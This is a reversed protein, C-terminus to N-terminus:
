GGDRSPWPSAHPQFPTAADGGGRRGLAALPRWWPCTAAGRRRGCNSRGCADPAEPPVAVRRDVAATVRRRHRPAAARRWAVAPNRRLHGAALNRAATAARRRRPAGGLCTRGDPVDPLCGGADAGARRGPAAAAVRRAHGISRDLAAAGGGGAVLFAAATARRPAAGLLAKITARRRLARPKAGTSSTAAVLAARLRHEQRAARRRRPNERCAVPRVVALGHPLPRQAHRYAVVSRHANWLATELAPPFAANPLTAPPSFCNVGAGGAGPSWDPPPPTQRATSARRQALPDPRRRPKAKDSTCPATAHDVKESEQCRLDCSRSHEGFQM